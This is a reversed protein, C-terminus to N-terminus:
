GAVSSARAEPASQQREAREIVAHANMRARCRARACSRRSLRPTGDARNDRTASAASAPLLGRRDHKLHAVRWPGEAGRTRETAARPTEARRDGSADIGRSGRRRPTHQARSRRTREVAGGSGRRPQGATTGSRRGDGGGPLPPKAGQRSRANASAGDHTAARHRSSPAGRPAGARKTPCAIRAGGEEALPM